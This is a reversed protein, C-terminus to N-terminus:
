VSRRLKFLYLACKKVDSIVKFKSKRKKEEWFVPIESVKYGKKQARILIETDWAWGRDERYGAEKIIELAVDRKFAKFGCQHDKIKSDFMIKVLINYGYSIIKRVIGREVKSGFVWRSGTSVDIGNEIEKILMPLSDLNTALDMDMFATIDSKAAEIGKAVAEGRGVNKEARLVKVSPYAKSLEKAIDYTRDKSGDDSVIIEYDVGLEELKKMTLMIGEEVVEEENYVPFIISVKM